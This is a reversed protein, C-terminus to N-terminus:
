FDEWQFDAPTEEDKAELEAARATAAEFNMRHVIDSWGRVMKKSDNEYFPTTPGLVSV